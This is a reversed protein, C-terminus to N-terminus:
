NSLRVIWNACDAADVINWSHFGKGEKTIYQCKNSGSQLFFKKLGELDYANIDELQLEECYTKRVFALDPNAYLRIHINKLWKANTNEKARVSYSSFRLYQEPKSEPSGGLANELYSKIFYGEKRILGGCSYKIKNEASAYMRELDLPPDIAFVGKIKVISDYALLHEAFGIAVAGGASLGGLVVDPETLNYKVTEVKILQTLEAITYDDAYLTPRLEPLITLYGKEALLRPLSTKKFVSQLSEGWGPMLLLMGKIERQPKMVYYSFTHGSVNGKSKIIDQGYCYTFCIQIALLFTIALCKLSTNYNEKLM